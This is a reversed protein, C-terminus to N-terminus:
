RPLGGAVAIGSGCAHVLGQSLACNLGRSTMLAMWASELWCDATMWVGGRAEGQAAQRIKPGGFFWQIIFLCLSVGGHGIGEEVGAGRAVIARAPGLVQGVAHHFRGRLEHCLHRPVPGLEGRMNVVVRVGLEGEVVPGQSVVVFAQVDSISRHGFAYFNK